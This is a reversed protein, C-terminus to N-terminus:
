GLARWLLGAFLCILFTFWLVVWVALVKPDSEGQKVGLDKNKWRYQPDNSWNSM